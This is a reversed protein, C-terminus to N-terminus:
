KRELSPDVVKM